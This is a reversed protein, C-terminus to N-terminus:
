LPRRGESVASCTVSSRAWAAAPTGLVSSARWYPMWRSVTYRYRPCSCVQRPELQRRGPSRTRPPPDGPRDPFGGMVLLHLTWCNPSMTGPNPSASELLRVLLSSTTALRRPEQGRLRPSHGVEPRRAAGRGERGGPAESESRLSVGHAM